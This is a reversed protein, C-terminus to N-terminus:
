EEESAGDVADQVPSDQVASEAVIEGEIVDGDASSGAGEAAEQVKRVVESVEDGVASFTNFLADRLLVGLDKLDAHIANDSAVNGLSDFVEQVRKGMDDIAAKADEATASAADATKDAATVATDSATAAASSATDAAEATASEIHMKFKLGLSEVKDAVDKWSETPNAM